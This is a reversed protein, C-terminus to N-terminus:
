IAVCVQIMIAITLNKHMVKETVRMNMKKLWRLILAFLVVCLLSNIVALIGVIGNFLAAVNSKRMGVVTKTAIASWDPRLQLVEQKTVEEDYSEAYM